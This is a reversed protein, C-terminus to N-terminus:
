RRAWDLYTASLDVTAVYKAGGAQAYVSAAGTYAFLNCVRKGAALDRVM